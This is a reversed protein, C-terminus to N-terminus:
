DAPVCRGTAWDRLAAIREAMTVSLPPSDRLAQLIHETTLEVQRAFAMHLASLIAQEIEAGSFGASAEALADLDFNAPNRGRRRLHIHFIQHRADIAPLDVFFIEDFRGKRLLEPPLAEIDNATAILFVPARHEQMWTLLAGFMRKSLGGDTSQSAASAFAKEIEDIWLIIPAMREAQRLTQRLRRESEGIYRDYLSGADLRLLPRKWATAVAKASLSKGAGQVGLMLVGRPPCIGFKAASEEFAAQRAELWAKLRRLGGIEDLSVPAEVFELMGESQLRRRKAALISNADAGNLRLDDAIAERIVQRADWTSLGRLNRIILELERPALGAQIRQQQHFQLATEKIISRLKADDPPLLDFEQSIARVGPPLSADPDILIFASGTRDFRFVLERFLRLTEPERELHRAADLLVILIRDNRAAVALLADLLTQTNPLAPDDALEARRLGRTVSWEWVPLDLERAAEHVVFLADPEDPTALNLCPRRARLLEILRRINQM